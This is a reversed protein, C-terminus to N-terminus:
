IYIYVNYPDMYIYICVKKVNKTDKEKEKKNPIKSVSSM